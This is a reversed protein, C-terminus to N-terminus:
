YCFIHLYDKWEQTMNVNYLFVSSFIVGHFFYSSSLYDLFTFFFSSQWCEKLPSHLCFCPFILYASLFVLCNFNCCCYPVKYQAFNNNLLKPLIFTRSYHCIYIFKKGTARGRNTIISNSHSFVQCLLIFFFYIKIWLKFNCERINHSGHCCFFFNTVNCLLTLLTQTKKQITYFLKIDVFYTGNVSSFPRLLHFPLM